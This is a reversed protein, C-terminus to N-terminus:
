EAFVFFDSVQEVLQVGLLLLEVLEALVDLAVGLGVGGFAFFMALELLLKLLTYIEQCM